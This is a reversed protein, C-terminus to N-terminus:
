RYLKGIAVPDGTGMAAEFDRQARSAKADSTITEASELKPARVVKRVQKAGPVVAEQNGSRKAKMHNFVQAYVMPDNQLAAYAVSAEQPKLKGSAVADGVSTFVQQHIADFDPDARLGSMIQQAQQARQQTAFTEINKVVPQYKQEIQQTIQPILLEAAEQMLRQKFQSVEDNGAYPDPQSQPAQQQGYAQLHAVLGPDSQLAQVLPMMREQFAFAEQIRPAHEKVSMGLEVYECVENGTLKTEGASLPLILDDDGPVEERKPEEPEAETKPQEGQEGSDEPQSDGEVQAPQTDFMRGIAEEDMGDAFMDPATETTVESTAAQETDM